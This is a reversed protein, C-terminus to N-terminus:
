QGDGGSLAGLLDNARQFFAKVQTTQALLPRDATVAGAARRAQAVQVGLDRSGQLGEMAQVASLFASRAMDAHKDSQPHTIQLSDAKLRMSTVRQEVDESLAPRQAAVGSIAAALTRIGEATYAHDGETEASADNRAVFSAFEGGSGDTPAVAGSASEAVTAAPGAAPPTGAAVRETGQTTAAREPTRDRSSLWWLLLLLLLLPLIWVLPNARKRELRIEAM